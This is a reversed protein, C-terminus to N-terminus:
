RERATPSRLQKLSEATRKERRKLFPRPHRAHRADRADRLKQKAESDGRGERVSTSELAANKRPKVIDPMGSMGPMRPMRPMGSNKNEKLPEEEKKCWCPNSHRMRGAIKNTAEPHRADSSDGADWQRHFIGFSQATHPTEVSETQTPSSGREKRDHKEALPKGPIGPMALMAPMGLVRAAPTRWPNSPRSQFRLSKPCLKELLEVPMSYRGPMGAADRRCGQPMTRGAVFRLSGRRGSSQDDNSKSPKWFFSFFWLRKEKTKGDEEEVAREKAVNDIADVFFFFLIPERKPLQTGKKEM